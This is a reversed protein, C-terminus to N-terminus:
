RSGFKSLRNLLGLALKASIRYAAMLWANKMSEMPTPEIDM